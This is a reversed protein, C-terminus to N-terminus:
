LAIPVEIECLGSNFITFKSVTGFVICSCFLLCAIRLHEYYCDEKYILLAFGYQLVCQKSHQATLLLSRM